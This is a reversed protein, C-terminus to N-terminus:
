PHRQGVRSFSTPSLVHHFWVFTLCQHGSRAGLARSGPNRPQGGSHQDKTCPPWARAVSDGPESGGGEDDLAFGLRSEEAKWGRRPDALEMSVEGGLRMESTRWPVAMEGLPLPLL